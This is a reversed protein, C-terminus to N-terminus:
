GPKRIIRVAGCKVSPNPIAKPYSSPDAGIENETRTKNYRADPIGKYVKGPEKSAPKCPTGPLNGDKGASEKSRDGARGNGIHHDISPQGDGRHLAQTIFAFQSSRYFGGMDSSLDNGGDSILKKIAIRPM